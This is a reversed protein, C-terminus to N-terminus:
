LQNKTLELLPLRGKRDDLCNNFRCLKNKRKDLPFMVLNNCPKLTESLQAFSLLFVALLEKHNLM